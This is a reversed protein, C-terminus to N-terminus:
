EEAYVEAYKILEQMAQDLTLPAETITDYHHVVRADLDKMNWEDMVVLTRGGRWEFIYPEIRLQLTARGEPWHFTTGHRELKTVSHQM